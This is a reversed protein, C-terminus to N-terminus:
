RRRLALAAGGATILAFGALIVVPLAPSTGDNTGTGTGTPPPSPAVATATATPTAPATTTPTPTAQERVRTIPTESMDCFTRGALAPVVQNTAFLPDFGEFSGDGLQQSLLYSLPTSSGKTYATGEPDEGLALLAQVAFATSSTNSAGDFGWGGDDNQTAKLYDLAATLDPDTADVDAATLAQAALATTDADSAGGFGWGGDDVQTNRLATIAGADVDNGTCALGIIALAQSFDDSAYRGTASDLAGTVTAILDTGNVNTPDLGLAEAALAGKAAAGASPVAAAQAELYDVPTQGGPLMDLSPDYGAARIALIADMNQGPSDSGYAGDARITSYIFAAGQEVAEDEPLAATVTVVSLAATAAAAVLTFKRM